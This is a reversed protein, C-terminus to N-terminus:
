ARIGPTSTLEVGRFLWAATWSLLAVPLTAALAVAPLGAPLLHSARLLVATVLSASNPASPHRVILGNICLACAVQLFLLPVITVPARAFISSVRWHMALFAANVLLMAWSACAALKLLVFRTQRTLPRLLTLHEADRLEVPQGYVADTARLYQWEVFRRSNGRDWGYPNYVALGAVPMIRAQWSEHWPSQILPAKGQQAIRWFELPPPVLSVRTLYEPVFINSLLLGLLLPSICALLAVALLRTRRVPLTLAWHMRPLVQLVAFLSFMTWLTWERSGLPLVILPLFALTRWQFLSRLIPSWIFALAAADGQSSVPRSLKAPLVEFAPPLQRWINWFLVPCLLACAALFASQTAFQLLIAAPFLILLSIISGLSSGDIGRVRWSQAALVLVSFGAGIVVLNALDEVPKGVFRLLAAGGAVPLWVGAFLALIRALFLDRAPIPLSAQFLTARRQPQSLFWCMGVLLPLTGVFEPVMAAAVASVSACYLANRWAPDRKVLQWIM